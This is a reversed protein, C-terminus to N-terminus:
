ASLAREDEHNCKVPGTEMFGFMGLVYWKTNFCGSTLCKYMCLMCIAYHANTPRKTQILGHVTHVCKVLFLSTHWTCAMMYRRTSDVCKIRLMCSCSNHLAMAYRCLRSMKCPSRDLLLTNSAHLLSSWRPKVALTASKPSARMSGWPSVMWVRAMPVM